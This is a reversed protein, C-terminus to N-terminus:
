GDDGRGRAAVQGVVIVAPAGLTVDALGDLTTRVQEEDPTTGWRVVAVPTAGAMGGAMLADAIARRQAMGMLIVLTGKIGALAAWDVDSTAKTPDEHGTVVTVSSAENRHTVPIGVAGPAAFASSVGPVVEWAIGAAELVDVEEGGRGFVFPDGGKLRVVLGGQRGYSVLLDNITAQTSSGGAVKGVDVLLADEPALGLIAPAVLRDHIVVEAESLVQTGRVTLLGPDGPGAGVLFVTM